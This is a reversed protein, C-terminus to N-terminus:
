AHAKGTHDHDTKKGGLKRYLAEFADLTDALDHRTVFRRAEAGMALRTSPDDALASLAEALAADDGPPYLYGTVGHHVLHPLAMADAAVVPLGAAMAEMTAISQLEATGPMCFVDGRRLVAVLEPEPLFGHFRVRDTLALDATLAEWEARCVGDGVIEARLDATRALARLLEDVHKERDLRGLFVVTTTTSMHTGAAEFRDLDIGCSIADTPLGRDRLLDAARPTPATVADARRYVRVLDGWAWRSLPAHLFRPLPGYGLLNEPMFHNTAVVPVSRAAAARLVTRGVGFHAQVHVVDPRVAAFLEPVARGVHWPACVRFTAHFPTRTSALRHVTIAGVTVVEATGTPSPCVVHVEEGRAALGHALRSAFNAAGNVDPPFTDAAILLRPRDGAPHPTWPAPWSRTLALVGAVAVVACALQAPGTAEGYFGAGVAVATLPDLVTVAGIVVAPPGSAYAQHALWGGALILAVAEVALLPADTLVAARILASGLGFQVAAAAALALCRARGTLRLGLAGLVLAALVVPQVRTVDVGASQTSTAALAVFGAVGVAVALAARRSHGGLLTTLVLSLVGIPQVVALPALTLALVHASAGLGALATGLWWARTRLLRGVRVAGHETVTRHQLHTSAAFCCAALVALGIAPLVMTM